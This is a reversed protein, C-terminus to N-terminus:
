KKSLRIDIFCAKDSNMTIIETKSDFYGDKTVKIILTNQEKYFVGKSHSLELESIKEGESYVFVKAGKLELGKSDFVDVILNGEYENESNPVFKLTYNSNSKEVTSNKAAGCSTLLFTGALIVMALYLIKTKIMKFARNKM